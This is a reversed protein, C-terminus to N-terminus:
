TRRNLRIRRCRHERAASGSWCRPWSRASPPRTVPAVAAELRADLENLEGALSDDVALQGEGLIRVIM